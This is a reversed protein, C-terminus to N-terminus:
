AGRCFIVDEVKGIFHFIGAYSCVAFKILLKRLLINQSSFFFQNKVVKYLYLKGIM